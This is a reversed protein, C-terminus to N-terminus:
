GRVYSAGDICSVLPDLEDCFGISVEDTSTGVTGEATAALADVINASADANDCAETGLM